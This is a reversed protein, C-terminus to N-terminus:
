CPSLGAVWAPKAQKSMIKLDDVRGQSVNHVHQVWGVGQVVDLLQVSAPLLHPRDVAVGVERADDPQVVDLCVVVAVDDELYVVWLM